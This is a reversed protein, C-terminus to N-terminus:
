GWAATYGDMSVNSTVFVAVHCPVNVVLQATGIHSLLTALSIPLSKAAIHLIIDAPENM